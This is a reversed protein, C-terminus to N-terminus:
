CKMMGFGSFLHFKLNSVGDRMFGIKRNPFIEEGAIGFKLEDCLFPPAERAGGKQKM